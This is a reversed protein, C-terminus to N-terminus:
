TVMQGAKMRLTECTSTSYTQLKDFQNVNIEIHETMRASTHSSEENSSPTVDENESETDLNKHISDLQQPFQLIKRKLNRWSIIKKRETIPQGSKKAEISSCSYLNRWAQHIDGCWRPRHCCWNREVWHLRSVTSRKGHKTRTTRPGCSNVFCRRSKRQANLKLSHEGQLMTWLKTKNKKCHRMCCIM